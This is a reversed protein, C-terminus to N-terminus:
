EPPPQTNNNNLDLREQGKENEVVWANYEGMRGALRTTMCIIVVPRVDKLELAYNGDADSTTSAVMYGSADALSEQLAIYAEQIRTGRSQKEYYLPLKSKQLGLIYSAGDMSYATITAGSFKYAGAGRTTTFVQGKVTRGARASAATQKRLAKEYAVLQSRAPEAILDLRYPEVGGAHKLVVRGSEFRVVEVNRLRTGSKLNIETPHEPPDDQAIAPITLVLALLVILTKM